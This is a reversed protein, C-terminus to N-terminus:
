KHGPQPVPIIAVRDGRATGTWLQDGIQLATSSDGFLGKIGQDGSRFVEGVTWETPDIKAIAFGLSCVPALACERVQSASVGQPIYPGTVYLNGDEGWRVNDPLFNLGIDHAKSSGAVPIRVIMKKGSDAVLLWHGDHSAEIGNAYGNAYSVGNTTEGPGPAQFQPVREWGRHPYWVAVNNGSLAIGDEPLPAVGNPWVKLEKPVKVCGRWTAQFAEGRMTVDIIEVSEREGHNDVYLRFKGRGIPKANLGVPSLPQPPAPCDPYTERDWVATSGPAPFLRRVGHTDIRIAELSGPGFHSPPSTSPDLNIQTAIVWPTHPLRVMDETNKLGCLFGTDPPNCTQDAISATVLSVGIAAIPLSSLSKM